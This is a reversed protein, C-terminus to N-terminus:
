HIMPSYPIRGGSDGSGEDLPRGARADPVFEVSTVCASAYIKQLQVRVSEEIHDVGLHHLVEFHSLVVFRFIDPPLEVVLQAYDAPLNGSAPVLVRISHDLFTRWGPPSSVIFGRFSRQLGHPRHSCLDSIASATTPRPSTSINGSKLFHPLCSAVSMFSALVWNSPDVAPSLAAAAVVTVEMALTPLPTVRTPAPTAMAEILIAPSKWACVATSWVAAPSVVDPRFVTRSPIRLIELPVPVPILFRVSPMYVMSFAPKRPESPRLTRLAAAWPARSSFAFSESTVLAIVEIM